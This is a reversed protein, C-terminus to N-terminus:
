YLDDKANMAFDTRIIETMLSSATGKAWTGDCDLDGAAQAFFWPTGAVPAPGAAIDAAPDGGQLIGEASYSTDLRYTLWTPGDPMFGFNRWEAVSGPGTVDGAVLWDRSKDVCLNGGAAYPTWDIDAPYYGFRDIHIKLQKKVDQLVVGAESWKSELIYHSMIPIAIAALLGIIAVVIMLEILTFGAPGDQSVRNCGRRDM